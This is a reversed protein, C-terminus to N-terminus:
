AQKVGVKKLTERRTKWKGRDRYVVIMGATPLDNAAFIHADIDDTKGGHALWSEVLKLDRFHTIIVLDRDSQQQLAMVHRVARLVRGRFQNFSEGKPIPTDPNDIYHQLQPIVEKAPKGMYVGVGWPRFSFDAEVPCGCEKAAAEAIVKCRDLDSTYIKAPRLTTIFAILEKAEKIGQADLPPNLWSRIYDKSDDDSNM